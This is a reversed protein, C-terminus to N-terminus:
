KDSSRCGKAIYMPQTCQPNHNLYQAVYGLFGNCQHVYEEQFPETNQFFGTDIFVKGSRDVRKASLSGTANEVMEM